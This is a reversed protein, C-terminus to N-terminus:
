KRIILSNENAEIHINLSQKLVETLLSLDHLPLTGTIVMGGLGAEQFIVPKGFRHKIVIAIESLPTDHCLLKDETWSSYLDPNVIKKELAPSNASVEALEGPEMTLEEHTISKLKVKGSKLVVQTKEEWDQVNFSTGLVEVELRDTHVVFKIYTEEDRSKTKEVEFFAEGELWVERQEDFDNQVLLSSNANLTVASGDPLVISQTEGYATQYTTTATSLLIFWIVSAMLMCGSVVAAVTYWKKYLSITKPISRSSKGQISSKIQKFLQDYDADVAQSQHIGKDEYIEQDMLNALHQQGEETKLYELVQDIEHANCRNELYKVLLQHM